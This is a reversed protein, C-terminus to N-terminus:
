SGGAFNIEYTGTVLQSIDGLFSIIPAYETTGDDRTLIVRGNSVDGSVYEPGVNPISM